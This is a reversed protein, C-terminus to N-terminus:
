RGARDRGGASQVGCAAPATDRARDIAAATTRLAQTVDPLTPHAAGPKARALQLVESLSAVGALTDRAERGIRSVDDHAVAESRCFQAMDCFSLCDPVYNSPLKRLAEATQEPCEPSSPDPGLTFSPPLKKLIEITAPVSKLVRSIADAKKRLPIRHATAQRSFNRAAVLIVSWAILDPDLGLREMTARLALVYVAAQGSTSAVKAPDAQGDIVPYSKIEVVELKNQIRFALADPELYMPIGALEFTLVPHDVLNPADSEGRAMARLVEDTKNARTSLWEDSGLAGKGKNLDVLRPKDVRFDYKDRLADFLPQYKGGQKLRWEFMTGSAIAFPSRGSTPAHGARNALEVVKIGASDIVRRRTCGPNDTLAAVTRANARGGPLAGRVQNLINRVEKEM